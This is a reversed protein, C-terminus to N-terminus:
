GIIGFSNVAGALAAQSGRVRVQNGEVTVKDVLIKLYEKGFRSLSDSLKERLHMCFKHVKAENIEYSSISRGTGLVM